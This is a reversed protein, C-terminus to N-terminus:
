ASPRVPNSAQDGIVTNWPRVSWSLVLGNIVYPDADAFRVASEPSDGQFLLIAKDAPDGLAGGLVLDANEQAQWALRLHEERFEGRRSLYDASLEYILLFHM